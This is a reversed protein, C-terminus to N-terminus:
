FEYLRSNTIKQVGSILGSVVLVIGIMETKWPPDPSRAALYLQYVALSTGVLTLVSVIKISRTPFLLALFCLLPNAMTSLRVALTYALNGYPLCSFSQTSPLVGNVLANIWATLLILYIFQARTLRGNNINKDITLAGSSKDSNHTDDNHHVHLRRTNDDHDGRTYNHRDNQTYNEAGDRSQYHKIMISDEDNSPVNDSIMRIIPAIHEKRCFSSYHLIAFSIGSVCIMSFLFVFFGGVGFRPSDYVPIIQHGTSNTSSNILITQNICHHESGVGQILGVLGPLLGSLGEGIYYATMYQPKFQGMYPLYVVSSTCDVLALFATLIILATGHLEGRVYSTHDWFLALLMCSSAGIVIIVCVALWDKVRHPAVYNIIMYAVPGINAIQIIIVLYSPLNWAEPLANVLLPVEVWLGNIDIWASIGFLIVLVYVAASVRSLRESIAMVSHDSTDHASSPSEVNCQRRHELLPSTENLEPPYHEDNTNNTRSAPISAQDHQPLEDANDSYSKNKSVDNPEGHSLVTTQTSCDLCASPAGDTNRRTPTTSTGTDTCQCSSGQSVGAPKQVTDMVQVKIQFLYEFLLYWHVFYM